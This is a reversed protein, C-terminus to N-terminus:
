GHNNRRRLFRILVPPLAFLTLLTSAVLGGLMTAVMSLEAAGLPHVALPLLAFVTTLTTTLVPRFREMAGEYVAKEPDLGQRHKEHALEYLVMGSNVSLGFLVMLALISSSDLIAGSILLAPGAGALSFPIALLLILPLSLSEFEAGMTVYLLIFVLVATLVLSFRYRAFASEDARGLGREKESYLSRLHRSLEGEKGPKPFLDLYLVDSRDLRALAVPAERYEIRALSGLFVPGTQTLAVPLAELEPLDLASVNMDLVKGALELEGAKIGGSAAYVARATETLSLGTYALAARDPLIRLEPRSGAPRMELTRTYAGSRFLTEAAAARSELEERNRGRIVVRASPSLGLLKETKDQPIYAAAGTGHLAATIRDLIEAPKVAPDLICRYTFTERRYDPDTRKGSDDDESGARGFLASIGSLVALDEGLAMAEAAISDMTTGPPFTLSVNIETADAPSVFGIPRSILLGFGAICVLAATGWVRRPRQICLRLLPGYWAARLGPFQPGHQRLAGARNQSGCPLIEPSWFFRFLSPLAFQAYVWGAAISSVLSISLDGFLSGLPGPLFVMPIFVVATTMTGGFSSSAVLAARDTVEKWSPRETQGYFSQHLLDLIIVPTDSVLGIGLAIGSLSMNNLSRGLVALAALSVAVAAPLSFGALISYRFSRLTLFLVAMVAVIGACASIALTRIGPVISAGDDYLIQIEGDRSFSAAEAVVLEQVERSLKVPDTGPRRYIELVVYEGMNGDRDRAIFVSERKAPGRTLIGLDDIVFPGSESPFVLSRLEEETGPRGQSVVVLEREGERSNGAPVNATESALIEALAAPPLGRLLARPIDVKVELEEKEGGGLIVAGVGDIRRLRSQLGYEAFNRAFVAGLHSRIVAIIQPEEGPDGPIVSPKRVGEPLGPYVADIAERVQISAAGSDTGWRFDLVTLSAGDRSVSRLRELGKVSSLADELPITLSSRIDEAGLGPYLAEVTVRPFPFEPLRQLPLISLSFFGGLFLSGLCMIVTVPRRVCAAILKNM